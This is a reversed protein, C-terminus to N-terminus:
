KFIVPLATAAAAQCLVQTTKRWRPPSRLLWRLPQLFLLYLGAIASLATKVPRKRPSLVAGM